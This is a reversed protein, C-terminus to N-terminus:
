DPIHRRTSLDPPKKNQRPAFHSFSFDPEFLKILAKAFAVYRNIRGMQCVFIIAVNKNRANVDGVTSKVPAYGAFGKQLKRKKRRRAPILDDNLKFDKPQLEFDFQAL